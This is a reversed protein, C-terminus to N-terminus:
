QSPAKLCILLGEYDELDSHVNAMGWQNYFVGIGIEYERSM